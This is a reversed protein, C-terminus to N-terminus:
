VAVADGFGGMKEALGGFGGLGGAAGRGCRYCIFRRAEM